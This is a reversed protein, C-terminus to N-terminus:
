PGQYKKPLINTREKFIADFSLLCWNNCEPLIICRLAVHYLNWNENEPWTEVDQGFLLLSKSCFLLELRSYPVWKLRCHSWTWIISRRRQTLFAWLTLLQIHSQGSLIPGFRPGVLKDLPSKLSTVLQPPNALQWIWCCTLPSPLPLGTIRGQDTPIALARPCHICYVTYM